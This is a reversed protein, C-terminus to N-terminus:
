PEGARFESKRLGSDGADGEATAPLAVVVVVVVVVVFGNPTCLALMVGVVEGVFALWAENACELSPLVVEADAAEGGALGLM